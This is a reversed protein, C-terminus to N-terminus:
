QEFKIMMKQLKQLRISMSALLGIGIEPYLRILRQLEEGELTIIRASGMAVQACVPSPNGTFIGDEGLSGGVGVIGLSGHNEATLQASLEVHGQAIIFLKQNLRGEEILVAEDPYNEERAIGAILGLEAIGLEAFLPAKKLFTMREILTDLNQSADQSAEEAGAVQEREQPIDQRNM